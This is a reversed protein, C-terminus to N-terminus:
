IFLFQVLMMWAELTTMDKHFRSTNIVAENGFILKVIEDILGEINLDIFRCLTEFIETKTLYSKFKKSEVISFVWNPNYIIFIFIKMLFIDMM